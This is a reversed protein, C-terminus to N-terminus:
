STSKSKSLIVVEPKTLKWESLEDLMTMITPEMEYKTAAFISQKKIQVLFVQKNKM